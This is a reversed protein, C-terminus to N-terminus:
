SKRDASALARLTTAVGRLPRGRPLRLRAGGSVVLRRRLRARAAGHVRGPAGRSRERRRPRHRQRGSTGRHRRPPVRSRARGAAARATAADGQVLALLALGTHAVALGPDIALAASFADEAGASYSLLRDMGEQFHEVARGSSTTIELGYRDTTPM